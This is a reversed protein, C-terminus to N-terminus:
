RGDHKANQLRSRSIHLSPILKVFLLEVTFCLVNFAHLILLIIFLAQISSNMFAIEITDASSGYSISELVILVHIVSEIASKWFEGIGAQAMKGFITYMSKSYTGAYFLAVTDEIWPEALIHCQTDPITRGMFLYSKKQDTHILFSTKDPNNAFNRFNRGHYKKTGYVFYQEMNNKDLKLKEFSSYYYEVQLKSCDSLNDGMECVMKFGSDFLNQNTDIFAPEFPKVANSTFYTTYDCPIPIMVISLAMILVGFNKAQPGQALMLWVLDLVRWIRLGPILCIMILSLLLLSWTPGDFPSLIASVINTKKKLGVPICYMFDQAEPYLILANLKKFQMPPQTQFNPQLLHLGPFIPGNNVNNRILTFNLRNAAAGILYNQMDSSMRKRSPPLRCFYASELRTATAISLRAEHWILAIGYYKSCHPKGHLLKWPSIEKQGWLFYSSLQNGACYSSSAM